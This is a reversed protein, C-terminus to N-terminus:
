GSALRDPDATLYDAAWRAAPSGTREAVDLLTSVARDYGARYAAGALDAAADREGGTTPTPTPALRGASRLADLVYRAVRSRRASGVGVVPSAFVSNPIAYAAIDVDPYPNGDEDLGDAPLPFHDTAEPEVADQAAPPDIQDAAALLEAVFARAETATLHVEDGDHDACLVGIANRYPNVICAATEIV